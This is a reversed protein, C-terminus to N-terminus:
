PDEDFNGEPLGPGIRPRQGHGQARSVPKGHESGAQTPGWVQRGPRAQGAALLSRM